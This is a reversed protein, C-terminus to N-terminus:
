YNKVSPRLVNWIFGAVGSSIGIVGCIQVFNQQVYLYIAEPCGPVGKIAAALGIALAFVTGAFAQIGTKIGRGTASDQDPLRITTEKKAM